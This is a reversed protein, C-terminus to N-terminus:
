LTKPEQIQKGLLGKVSVRKGIYKALELVEALNSLMHLKLFTDETDVPFIQPIYM